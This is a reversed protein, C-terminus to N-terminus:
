SAQALEPTDWESEIVSTLHVFKFCDESSKMTQLCLYQRSHDVPPVFKCCLDAVPDYSSFGPLVELVDYIEVKNKSSLQINDELKTKM